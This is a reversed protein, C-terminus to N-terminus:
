GPPAQAEAMARAEAFSADIWEALGDGGSGVLLLEPAGTVSGATLAVVHRGLDNDVVVVPQDPFEACLVGFATLDVLATATRPRVLFRRVLEAAARHTPLVDGYEDARVRVPPHTGDPCGPLFGAIRGAMEEFRAGAVVCSGDPHRSWLVGADEDGYARIDIRGDAVHVGSVVVRLPGRLMLSVVWRGTENLEGHTGFGLREVMDAWRLHETVEDALDGGVDPGTAASPRIERIQADTVGPCYLDLVSPREPVADLVPGAAQWLLPHINDM